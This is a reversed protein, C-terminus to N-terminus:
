AATPHASSEAEHWMLPRCAHTDSTSESLPVAMVHYSAGISPCDRYVYDLPISYGSYQEGFNVTARLLILYVSM